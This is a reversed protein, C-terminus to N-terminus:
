TIEGYTDPRRNRLFGWGDQSEQVRDLDVEVVLTEEASDSTRCLVQGFPDAVFSRGWFTLNGEVGVRNVAAVYIGNMSAHACMADEWRQASFPEGERMQDFWGIATPYFIIEVGRLALIRAPEPFWQDYCILPAIKVAHANITAQVYGLNGPSFYFQEWYNPDHPIHTKRYRAVLTGSEDFVVATNFFEGSNTREFISGGVLSVGCEQATTALFQSTRGPIPEALSFLNGDEIQAFYQTAFLEQLCVLQAGGDAVQQICDRTKTLNAAVDESVQTQILGVVITREGM